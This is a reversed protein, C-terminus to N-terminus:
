AKPAFTQLVPFDEDEEAGIRRWIGGLGDFIRRLPSDQIMESQVIDHSIDFRGM